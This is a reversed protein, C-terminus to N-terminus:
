CRGHASKGTTAPPTINVNSNSRRNRSWRRMWLRRPSRPSTNRRKKSNTWAMLFTNETINVAERLDWIALNWVFHKTEEANVVTAKRTNNPLVNSSFMVYPPEFTLNNFQSYPAFNDLGDKSRTSIRGIPRPIVCAKFPDHPLVM